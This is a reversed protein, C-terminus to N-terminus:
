KFLKKFWIYYKPVVKERGLLLFLQRGDKYWIIKVQPEKEQLYVLLEKFSIINFHPSEEKIVTLLPIKRNPEKPFVVMRQAWFILPNM